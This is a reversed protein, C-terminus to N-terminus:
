TSLNRKANEILKKIIDDHTEGFKGLKELEEKTDLHIRIVTAKMIVYINNISNINM